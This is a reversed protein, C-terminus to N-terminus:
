RPAAIGIRWSSSTLAPCFIFPHRLADKRLGPVLDGTSLLWRLDPAAVFHLTGRPAWTRVITRAAIAQEINADVSGPLRLGLSWKAGAYDQAQVAGLWGVVKGPNRFRPHELQQNRLRVLAIDSM